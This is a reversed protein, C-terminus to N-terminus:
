KVIEAFVWPYEPQPEPYKIKGLGHLRSLTRALSQYESAEFTSFRGNKRLADLVYEDDKRKSAPIDALSGSFSCIIAKMM